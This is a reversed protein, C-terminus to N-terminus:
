GTWALALANVTSAGFPVPVDADRDELELARQLRPMTLVTDVCSTSRWGCPTRRVAEPGSLELEDILTVAQSADHLSRDYEGTGVRAFSLLILTSCSCRATARPM